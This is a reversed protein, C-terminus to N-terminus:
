GMFNLSHVAVLDSLGSAVGCSHLMLQWRLRLQQPQPSGDPLM